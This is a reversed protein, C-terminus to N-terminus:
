GDKPPRAPVPSAGGTANYNRSESEATGFGIFLAPLTRKKAKHQARRLQWRHAFADAEYRASNTSKSAPPPRRTPNRLLKGAM